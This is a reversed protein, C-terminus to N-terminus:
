EGEKIIITTEMLVEMQRVFPRKGKLTSKVHYTGAPLVDIGEIENVNFRAVLQNSFTFPTEMEDLWIDYTYKKANTEIQLVIDEGQVFTYEEQVFRAEITSETYHKTFRVFITDLVFFILLTIFSFLLFWGLRKYWRDNNM